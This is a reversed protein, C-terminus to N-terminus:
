EGCECVLRKDKARNGKTHYNNEQCLWIIGASGISKGQRLETVIEIAEKAKELALRNVEIQKKQNEITLRNTNSESELSGIRSKYNEIELSHKDIELSIREITQSQAEITELHLEIAERDEKQELLLQDIQDKQEGIKVRDPEILSLRSYFLEAGILLVNAAQLSMFLDWDIKGRVVLALIYLAVLGSSAYSWRNAFSKDKPFANKLRSSEILIYARLVGIALPPAWWALDPRVEAAFMSVIGLAIILLIRNKM